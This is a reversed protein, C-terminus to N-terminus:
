KIQLKEIAQVCTQSVSAKNSALCASIRGEGPRTDGCLKAIDGQCTSWAEKLQDNTAQLDLEVEDLEYACKASIKDEYAQMCSILHGGGPTVGICFKKIDDGCANEFKKVRATLKELIISMTDTQARAHSLATIGAAVLVAMALFRSVIKM